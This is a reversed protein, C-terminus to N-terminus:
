ILSILKILRKVASAKSKNIKEIIKWKEIGNIEARIKMIEGRMSVKAKIQEEKELKKAWLFSQSKEEKRIYNNLNKM